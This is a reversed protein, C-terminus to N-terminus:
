KKRMSGLLQDFEKRATAVTATPGALKFFLSGEPGEVIAGLLTWGSAGGPSGEATGAHALYTGAVEVRAVKIGRVEFDRREPPGPNEFEGIWREINAETGGGQGPGFYYVACKAGEGGGTSAPVVYTALRMGSALEEVWRRPTEWAVGPDQVPPAALGGEGGPMAGSGGPAEATQTEPATSQRWAVFALVGILLVIVSSILRLRMPPESRQLPYAPRSGDPPGPAGAVVPAAWALHYWAPEGSRLRAESREPVSHVTGPTRGDLALRPLARPM